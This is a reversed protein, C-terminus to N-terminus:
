PNFGHGRTNPACFRLWPGGPFDRAVIMKIKPLGLIFVKTEQLKLKRMQLIPVNM